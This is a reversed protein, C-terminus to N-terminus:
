GIERRAETALQGLDDSPTTRPEASPMTWHKPSAIQRHRWIGAVVALAVVVCVAASVSMDPHFMGLLASAALLCRLAVDAGRSPHCRGFMAFTIGLTSILVLLTDAIMWWGPNVVMNSRTFIAFTM